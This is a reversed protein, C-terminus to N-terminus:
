SKIVSKIKRIIDNFESLNKTTESINKNFDDMDIPSGVVGETRKPMMEVSLPSMEKKEEKPPNFAYILFIASETLLGVTLYTDAYRQHTIKMLAGFIVVSAGVCTVFNIVKEFTLYKKYM